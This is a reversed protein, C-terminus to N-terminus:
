AGEKGRGWRGGQEGLQAVPGEHVEGGAAADHEDQWALHADWWCMWTPLFLIGVVFPVKKALRAKWWVASSLQPQM